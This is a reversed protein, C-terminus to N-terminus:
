DKVTNLDCETMNATLQGRIFVLLKYLIESWYSQSDLTMYAGCPEQVAKTVTEVLHKKATNIAKHQGSM